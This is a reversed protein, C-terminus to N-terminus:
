AKWASRGVDRDIGLDAVQATVELWARLRSPEAESDLSELYRALLSPPLHRITSVVPGFREFWRGEFESRISAAKDVFADLLEAIRQMDTEEAIRFNWFRWYAGGLRRNRPSRLYSVAQAAGLPEPYLAALLQGLLEDESDPVRGQWVDELLRLLVSAHSEISRGQRVYADLAESRVQPHRGQERVLKLAADALGPVESGVQLARLVVLIARRDTSDEDSGGLLDRFSDAMEPSALDGLRSNRSHFLDELGTHRELHRAMAWVLSIKEEISFGSIDGYLLTGVPDREMVPARSEKCHAALWATTGQLDTVVHGDYGTALALVRSVPTGTSVKNALYRGALFEAVHRHVPAMRDAGISEFVRSQLSYTAADTWPIYRGSDEAPRRSFGDRGTLIQIACLNGTAELLAEEGPRDTSKAQHETNHEQALSACARLYTEARFLPWGGSETARALLKLTLPNELLREIGRDRAERVFRETTGTRLIEALIGLVGDQDLPDLHFVRVSGDPSVQKLHDRDSTGLWDADRCSIRFSPRDLEDLKSRISDLPPTPDSSGTRQEDLADIFLTRERWEPRNRLTMFDRASEFVGGTESAERMFLTTKGAGPAGVLVYAGVDRLEDLSFPKVRGPPRDVEFETCTRAVISTM